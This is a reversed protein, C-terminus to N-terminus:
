ACVFASGQRVFVRGGMQVRDFPVAQDVAFGEVDSLLAMGGRGCEKPPAEPGEFYTLTVLDREADSDIRWLAM